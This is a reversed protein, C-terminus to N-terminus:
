DRLCRVSAGLSKVFYSVRGVDSNNNNLYRLWAYNSGVETASWFFASFRVSSFSGDSNRFGGPLASFGSSNTGTNTTWLVDSKKMLTGASSSQISSNATTDADSDISKVLKNWDSDTPVHWGTPCIKRSDTAAYWNYLYGYTSVYGTVGSAVYETRAGTTLAGWGSTNATGDPIDDGNNYKTVKLNEKMWCQTGIGVTNYENGDKDEVTPTPCVVAPTVAASAASAVSKGVLNEAVVTFKYPTGNTLYNVTIPSTGGLVEFGGPTSTVWYNTIDSGGNNTPAVFAVSASGDGATAVVGTPADPVTANIVDILVSVDFPPGCSGRLYVGLIQPFGPLGAQTPTGTITIVNASWSAVLGQPLISGDIGTVGTTRIRIPTIPKNVAFTQGLNSMTTDVTNPILCDWTPNGSQDIIISQGSNGPALKIWSGQSWYLIEGNQSGSPFDEKRLYKALMTMTDSINVKTDIAVQTLISVPKDEDSTNDVSGLGVMTKDIGSVQGTFEPNNIPAKTNLAAQTLISVPKGEDSTNDVSDLGVMTKDIGSVTGTFTPNALPAKLALATQTASYIAALTDQAASYIAALATQTAASVPKSADSTNNVNELGVMTKDIGSVTGTFTPNALPAKDAFRNTLNLSNTDTKSAYMAYPVSMLEQTGLTVYTNGGNFDAELKIFHSANGWNITAFSGSLATGSGIQLSVLGIADTTSSHTESYVQTGIISDSLISIKFSLTKNSFIVGSTNRVISQFNIKQPSQAMLTVSTFIFLAVLLLMSKKLLNQVPLALVNRQNVNGSLAVKANAEAFRFLPDFILRLNRAKM